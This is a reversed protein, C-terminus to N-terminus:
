SIPPANSEGQEPPQFYERVHRPLNDWENRFDEDSMNEVESTCRCAPEFMDETHIILDCRSCFNGTDERIM